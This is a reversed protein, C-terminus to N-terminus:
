MRITTFARKAVCIRAKSCMYIVGEEEVMGVATAAAAPPTVLSSFCCSVCFFFCLSAYCLHDRAVCHDRAVRRDSYDDSDSDAAIRVVDSVFEQGKPSSEFASLM